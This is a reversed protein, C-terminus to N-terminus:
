GTRPGSLGPAAGLPYRGLPTYVPGARGLVSQFLVVERVAVERGEFTAAGLARVLEEMGKPSRVRGLTLHASFPREEPPFGLDALARDMRGALDRLEEKGEEVGVWIVRPRRASPFAGTGAATFRFPAMQAAARSLAEGLPALRVPEVEGLFKLTLHFNEEEVWKVDAGTSALREVLAALARRVDGPLELAVFLRLKM